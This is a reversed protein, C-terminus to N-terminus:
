QNLLLLKEVSAPVVRGAQEPVALFAHESGTSKLYGYGVIWGSANIGTARTLRLFPNTGVALANLDYLTNGAYLFARAESSATTAQGVVWGGDHIAFAMSTTGGLTGLDTFVSGKKLFAHTPGMFPNTFFAMGAVDGGANVAYAWCNYGPEMTPSMATLAGGSQSSFGMLVQADSINQANYIAYSAGVILGTANVAQGVGAVWQWTAGPPLPPPPAAPPLGLDSMSGNAYLFAQQYGSSSTSGGVIQGSNNIAYAASYDGGSLTGLDTMVGGSYLFGRSGGAITASGVVQGLDNLGLAHSSAGGPLVGLSTMVGGSWLFAREDGNPTQTSGAVQGKANIASAQSSMGEGGLSGLDYVRYRPQQAAHALLAGLLVLACAVFAIRPSHRHTM